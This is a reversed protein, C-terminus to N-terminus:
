SLAGTDGNNLQRRSAVPQCNIQQQGSAILTAARIVGAHTLTDRAPQADMWAAAVRAMFTVSEVRGAQYDSFDDTRRDAGQPL